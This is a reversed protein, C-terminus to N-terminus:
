QVLLMPSKILMIITRVSVSMMIFSMMMMKVGVDNENFLFFEDQLKYVIAM